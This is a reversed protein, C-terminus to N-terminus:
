TLLDNFSKIVWFLKSNRLFYSEFGEMGGKELPPHPPILYEHNAPTSGTM